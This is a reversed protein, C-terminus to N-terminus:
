QPKVAFGFPRSAISSLSDELSTITLAWGTGTFTLAYLDANSDSFVLLVDQVSAFSQLDISETYGKGPISGDTQVIWGTGPTWSAWDLTDITDDAYVCVATGSSGVWAVAAPFDGTAGNNVDRIQADYEGAHQWASGDWTALGLREQGDLSLACCAIRSGGPETALDVFHPVGNAPAATQQAAASWATGAALKTSYWFGNTGARGWAVLVDGTTAEYAVDFVRNSVAGTGANPKLNFELV